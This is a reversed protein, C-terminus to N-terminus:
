FQIILKQCNANTSLKIWVKYAEIFVKEIKTKIENGRDDICIVTNVNSLLNYIADLSKVYFQSGSHKKVPIEIIM